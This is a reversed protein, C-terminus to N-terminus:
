VNVDMSLAHWAPELSPESVSGAVPPYAEGYRQEGFRFSSLHAIRSAHFWRSRDVNVARGALSLADVRCAKTANSQQSDAPAHAPM